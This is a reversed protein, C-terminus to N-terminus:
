NRWGVQVVALNASGKVTGVVRDGTQGTVDIQSAHLMQVRQYVAGFTIGHWLRADAGLGAILSNSEPLSPQRYRTTVPSQEYAVGGFLDLGPAM